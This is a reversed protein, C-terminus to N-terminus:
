DVNSEASGIPRAHVVNNANKLIIVSELANKSGLDGSSVQLM